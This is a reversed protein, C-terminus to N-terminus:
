PYNYCLVGGKPDIQDKVLPPTRQSRPWIQGFNEGGAARKGRPFWWKSLEFHWNKGGAAPKGREFHTKLVGYAIKKSQDKYCLPFGELIIVKARRLRNKKANEGQLLSSVRRFHDSKARRLRFFIANGGQM